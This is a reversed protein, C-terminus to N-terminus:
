QSHHFGWSSFGPPEKQTVAFLDTKHSGAGWAWVALLNPFVLIPFVPTSSIQSPLSCLFLM